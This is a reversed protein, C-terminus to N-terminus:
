WRFKKEDLDWYRRQIRRKYRKKLSGGYVSIGIKKAQNQLLVKGQSQFLDRKECMDTVFRTNLNNQLNLCFFREFVELNIGGCIVIEVLDVSTLTDIIIGNRM